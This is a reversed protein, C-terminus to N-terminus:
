MASGLGMMRRWASVQGFHSMPHPGFTFGIAHAKLPFLERSRGETPNPEQLVKDDAAKVAAVAADFGEFFKKTVEAFSPYLKGDVDDKCETGAKFLDTWHDPVATVGEPQGCMAMVRRNYLSLHGFVFVPHNSVVKVGGPTAFRAAKDAPVDKLMSEGFMRTVVTPGAIIPGIVNSM